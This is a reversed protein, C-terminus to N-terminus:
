AQEVGAVERFTTKVKGGELMRAKSKGFSMPGGRGGMGGQMQRMFFFFIALIILIPFSAVLLQTWISERQPEEGLVEVRHEFLDTMLQDDQVYIPRTTTFSNGEQTIGEITYGDGKFSVQSIQDKNVLSVFESYNMNQSPSQNYINQIAVFTIGSIALWVLINRMLQSM